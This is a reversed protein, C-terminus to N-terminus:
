IHILSLSVLARYIDGHRVDGDPLVTYEIVIAMHDQGPLLSTIGKSLKDPLMPFTEIGTYVSTGNHSAHLDTQSQKQVYTDVDAIAIKVQIEGNPRQAAFEIQDLDMSDYNDISSWLLMRLDQTNEKVDSLTKVPISAVERVVSNPFLPEFGYKRMANMAIADLDVAHHNKM